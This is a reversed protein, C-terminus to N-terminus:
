VQSRDSLHFRDEEQAGAVVVTAPKGFFQEIMVGFTRSNIPLWDRPRARSRPACLTPGIEGNAHVGKLLHHNRRAAGIPERLFTCDVIQGAGIEQNRDFFCFMPWEHSFPESFPLMQRVIPVHM